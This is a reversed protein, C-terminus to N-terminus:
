GSREGIKSTPAAAGSAGPLGRAGVWALATSLAWLVACQACVMTWSVGEPLNVLLPLRVTLLLLGTATM